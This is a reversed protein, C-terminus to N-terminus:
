VGGCLSLRIKLEHRRNHQCSPARSVRMGEVGLLYISRAHQAQARNTKFGCRLQSKMLDTGFLGFYRTGTRAMLRRM